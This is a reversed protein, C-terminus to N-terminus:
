FSRGCEQHEEKAAFAESAEGRTIRGYACDISAALLPSESLYGALVKAREYSAM